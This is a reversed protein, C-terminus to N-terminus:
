IIVICAFVLIDIHFVNRQQDLIVIDICIEIKRRQLWYVSVRRDEKGVIEHACLVAVIQDSLHLRGTQQFGGFDLPTKSLSRIDSALVSLLQACAARQEQLVFPNLGDRYDLLNVVSKSRLDPLQKGHAVPFPSRHAAVRLHGAVVRPFVEARVEIGERLTIHALNSSLSHSRHQHIQVFHPHAPSGVKGVQLDSRHWVQPLREYEEGSILRELRIFPRLM